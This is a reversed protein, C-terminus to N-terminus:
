ISLGRSVIYGNVPMDRCVVLYSMEKEDVDKMLTPKVAKSAEVGEKSTDPWVWIMGQAELTPLSTACARRSRLAGAEGQDTEPDTQPIKSCQGSGSFEWGHYACQLHGTRTDIRGESLPALRHPCRDVFCRWTRVAGKKADAATGERWLVLDRGLLMVKTPVAGDIDRTLAVPYWQKWWDFADDDDEIGNENAEIVSAPSLIRAAAPMKLSIKPFKHCYTQLFIPFKSM